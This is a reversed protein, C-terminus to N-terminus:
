PLALDYRFLVAHEKGNAFARGQIADNVISKPLDLSAFYFPLSLVVVVLIVIQQGRSHKWIYRFLPELVTNHATAPQVAAPATRDLSSASSRFSIPTMATPWRRLSKSAIAASRLVAGSSVDIRAM